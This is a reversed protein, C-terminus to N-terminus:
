KFNTLLVEDEAVSLSPCSLSALPAVPVGAPPARGSISLRMRNIASILAHSAGAVPLERGTAAPEALPRGTEWAWTIPNRM